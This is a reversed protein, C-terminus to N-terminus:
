KLIANVIRIAARGDGFPNVANSMAEYAIPDELLLKAEAVIKKANAGVLKAGGAAIAEPRETTDRTILVPTGLSLAEEQIGGSDTIIFYAAELLYVFPLYDVSELLHIRPLGSLRELVVSRVNPNLHVPYVIVVDEHKALESLALCLQEFGEGYSERRHGTVLIMRKTPDIFSFRSVMEAYIVKSNRLISSVELVADVVTNGVVYIRDEPVGERILNQKSNETPTFHQFAIAATLKRNMEEPWPSYINGTRLGAEVHIVPLKEYFCSLSAAFSSTTDGHVIVSDPRWINLIDQMGTLVACTIDTLSQNPKMLCLDFDPSIDFLRLVQDLMQRHQGTVCIKVDLDNRTKLVKIVPALKIAEPRTGFTM